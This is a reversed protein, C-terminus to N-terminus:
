PSVPFVFALIFKVTLLGPASFLQQSSQHLLYLTAPPALPRSHLHSFELLSVSGLFRGRHSGPFSLFDETKLAYPISLPAYTIYLAPLHLTYILYVPRSSGEALCVSCHTEVFMFLCLSYVCMLLSLSLFVNLTYFMIRNEGKLKFVHSCTKYQICLVETYLQSHM